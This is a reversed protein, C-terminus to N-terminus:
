RAVKGAALLEAVRSATVPRSFLYGQFGDCGLALLLERQEETEVGEAIARLGIGHALSIIAKVVAADKPDLTMEMVFSRDIKLTDLPFNKLYGLSSYGTGFDDMTLHIGLRKLRRLTSLVQGANDMAMSETIELDLWRAEVQTEELTAIIRAVIDAQLFQRASLNVSMRVPVIGEERWTRHQGCAQRLVWHGLPVILGTEEALPIFQSPAVLLGDRNWYVLAEVGLIEETKMDTQPQYLLTFDGDRLASRLNSELSMRSQARRNLEPTYLQYNDRGNEKARYMAIDANKLLTEVDDGDHPYLSVGASATIFLEQGATEFPHKFSQLVKEAIKVADAPDNVDPLLFVFEDGGLRALTDGERLLNRARMAISRLLQDGLTHGLSDNIVKFRDLDLFMVALGRGTRHAHALALTLRDYFLLRNPLDTLADHFALHKIEEATRRSEIAGVVHQSVFALLDMERESFRSSETYSQVVIAGIIRNGAKLPVGLWDVSPSGRPVVEGAAVLREFLEPSVLLPQGGRLVYDTLTGKRAVPSPPPDFEDKFYPFQLTDAAYDVIAIFFNRADMLDGVIRHVAEYLSDIDHTAASEEAIRYLAAQLKEARRRETVDLLTGIVAPRGEYEMRSGLVEVDVREGDKRIASFSYGATAVENRFLQGLREAAGPRDSPAVLDLVPIRGVMEGPSYGLIQEMKPNVYSLFGEQIIYVGVLSQEVLRRYKADAEGRSTVDHVISYLVSRGDVTVPSSHVEVERIEGSALRHRFQFLNRDEAAARALEEAIEEPPLINIERVNMSRLRLRDYGYFECAAPNADLISGDSPDILLQVARNKEFM